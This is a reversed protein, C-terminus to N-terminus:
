AELWRQESIINIGGNNMATEIKRGHSSYQWAQTAIEGLVLYNLKKTVSKSVIGGLEEVRKHCKRRTGYAFTGTFCFVRGEHIVPVRDDIPLTTSLGDSVGQTITEGTLSFLFEKLGEMEEHTIVGDALIERIRESLQKAPYSDMIERRDAIWNRLFSIEQPNLQQDCPLGRCIGLLNQMSEDFSNDEVIYSALRSRLYLREHETIIGDSLAGKVAGTVECVPWVHLIAQHDTLWLDLYRVEDDTLHRDALLGQLIGNFETLARQKLNGARYQGRRAWEDM